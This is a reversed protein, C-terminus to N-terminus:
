ARGAPSAAERRPTRRREILQEVLQAAASPPDHQAAWAALERARTQLSDDELIRELARRLARPTIFRHPLRVGAGSWDLRAANENMDGAIPCALVPCGCALARALTGHGVHCVVVDCSPMTRAYSLWEVVSANPPTPLPRARARRSRLRGRQRASALEEGAGPARRNITALVRVPADALGELAARLLRQGPDQSTSPAILVLPEDGPPLPVEPSAPEWMLPGVVHVGPPWGRPYELAPFTAVLALDASIGGHVRAVPPMGLQARALNLDARGEEVGRRMPGKVGEWLARGPTTRPLRAGFSYIPFGPADAPYIHPVLTAFPVSALEAALAPALTLIDAVVAAPALEDVLPATDRTAQVVADYFGLEGPGTAPDDYEPAPAFRMGEAEVPQQWRKWTQLWVEHGRAVLARGLAIMPFAHGPDGFAGLLIPRETPL